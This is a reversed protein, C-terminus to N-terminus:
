ITWVGLFWFTTTPFLLQWMMLATGLPLLLNDTWAVSLLELVALILAILTVQPLVTSLLIDQSYM